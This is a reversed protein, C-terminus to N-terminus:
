VSAGARSPAADTIATSPLPICLLVRTGHGPASDLALSGGVRAARERMGLIGLGADRMPMGQLDLEFGCGNDEIEVRLMGESRRLLIRINSAAAHKECNHLAEQAVRYVCTKIADPLTDEVGDESFECAIGSRRIFDELHWQLAPVLGLDDLLPPRLLLSINRITQVTKEALDRARRLRDRMAPWDETLALASTIEIQLVALAQGIEDHLERSLKRRGDEEIELLRASLQELESKARAVEEYQRETKRELNEAYSLSFRAVLLGLVVCLGLMFILRRAANRRSEAFEAESRQLAALDAETLEHLVAHLTNRRPVIERQVFEYQEADSKSLMSQPIPDIVNWFEQLRARLQPEMRSPRSQEIQQLAQRSEDKLERLQSTLLAAGEPSTKIFFDRVYNGAFWITRRLQGNAADLRVYRHYTEVHKASVTSQIQYAEISAFVLLALVAGYGARL